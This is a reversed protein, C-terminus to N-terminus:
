LLYLLVRKEQKIGGALQQKEVLGEFLPVRVKVETIRRRLTAVRM